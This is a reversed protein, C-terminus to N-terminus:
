KLRQLAGRWTDMPLALTSEPPGLFGDRWDLAPRRGTVLLAPGGAAHHGQEYVAGWPSTSRIVAGKFYLGFAASSWMLSPCLVAVLWFHTRAPGRVPSALRVAVVDDLEGAVDTKRALTVSSGLTM